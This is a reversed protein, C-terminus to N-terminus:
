TKFKLYVPCSLPIVAVRVHTSQFIFDDPLFATTSYAIKNYTFSKYAVGPQIQFFFILWVYAVGQTQVKASQFKKGRKM